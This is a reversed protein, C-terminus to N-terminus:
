EINIREEIYVNDLAFATSYPVLFSLLVQIQIAPVGDDADPVGVGMINILYRLLQLLNPEVGIRHDVLQLHLQCLAKSFDTAVIVVLQEEDIGSGLGILISQFQGRELSTACSYEGALFGEM